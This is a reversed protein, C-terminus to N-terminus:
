HHQILVKQVVRLRFFLVHAQVVDVVQLTTYKVRLRVVHGSLQVLTQLYYLCERFLMQLHSQQCHVRITFEYIPNRSYVESRKITGMLIM